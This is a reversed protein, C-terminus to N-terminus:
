PSDVKWDINVVVPQDMVSVNCWIGPLGSTVDPDFYCSNLGGETPLIRFSYNRFTMGAQPSFM